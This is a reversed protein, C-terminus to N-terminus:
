GGDGGALGFADAFERPDFLIRQAAIKGDRVEIWDAITLGLAGGAPTRMDLEYISCVDGGAEFQRLMRTQEHFGLLQENMAVYEAAGNAQMVPGAFSVDDAVLGRLEEARGGNTADYFRNVIELAEGM